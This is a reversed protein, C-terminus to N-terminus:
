VEWRSAKPYPCYKDKLLARVQVICGCQRCTTKFDLCPCKHCQELRKNYVVESVLDFNKNSIIENVMNKISESPIWVSATCGKCSNSQTM